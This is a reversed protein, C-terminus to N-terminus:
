RFVGLLSQFLTLRSLYGGCRSGSAKTIDHNDYLQRVCSADYASRPQKKNFALDRRFNLYGRSTIPIKLKSCNVDLREKRMEGNCFASEVDTHM